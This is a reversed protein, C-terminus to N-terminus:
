RFQAGRHWLPLSRQGSLSKIYWATQRSWENGWKWRKCLTHEITFGDLFFRRNSTGQGPQSNNNGEILGLESLHEAENADPKTIIFVHDLAITV